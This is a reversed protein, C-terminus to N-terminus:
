DNGTRNRLGRELLAALEDDYLMDLDAHPGVVEAVIREPEEARAFRVIELRAPAVRGTGGSGRGAVHALWESGRAQFRRPVAPAAAAVPEPEPSAQPVADAIAAPTPVPPEAEDLASAAEHARMAELRAVLERASIPRPHADVVVATSGIVEESAIDPSTAAPPAPAHLVPHGPGSQGNTPPAVQQRAQEERRRQRRGGRRGRRGGGSM